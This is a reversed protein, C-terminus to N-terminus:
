YLSSIHEKVAAKEEVSLKDWIVKALKFRAAREDVAKKKEGLIRETYEIEWEESDYSITQDFLGIHSNEWIRLCAGSPILTVESSMNGIEKAMAQLHLMRSPLTAQFNKRDEEKNNM